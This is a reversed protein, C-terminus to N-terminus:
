NWRCIFWSRLALVVNVEIISWSSDIGVRDLSANGLFLLHIICFIFNVVSEAVEVGPPQDDVLLNVIIAQLHSGEPERRVEAQPVQGQEGVLLNVRHM